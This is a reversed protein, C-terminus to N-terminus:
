KTPVHSSKRHPLQRLAFEEVARCLRVVDMFSTYLPAPAIRIVDPKRVDVVIGRALLYEYMANCSAALRVSLQAGREKSSPPTVIALGLEPYTRGLEILLEELFGTLHISKQRLREMTARHFQELAVRHVALALVPANSLQWSDASPVPEFWQPMTFRTAPDNGWWGALRLTAPNQAHRRHVFAGGVGGPGSNLYKYSCWVAYDVEWDHLQLPVNGIAHALDWGAFAGVRHAAATITPIDFFQGTLYHVASMHVLALEEGLAEITEIIAATTIPELPSHDLEVICESRELGHWRVHSEAAYRDSPFEGPLLLIKRRRGAPRYFSALMLHLNVTLSNMAVVEDAGAGVLEALLPALDEHYRYWPRRAHMHGEVALDGWETLVEELAARARRPMLGLSNGAFYACPTGDRMPRVFEERFSALADAADAHQAREAYRSEPGVIEM